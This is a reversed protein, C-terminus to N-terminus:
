RLGRQLNIRERIEAKAQNYLWNNTFDKEEGSKNCDYCWIKDDNSHGDHKGLPKDEGVYELMKEKFLDQLEKTAQDISLTKKGLNRQVGRLYACRVIREMEQKM